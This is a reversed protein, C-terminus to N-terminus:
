YDVSTARLTSLSNNIDSSVNNDYDAVILKYGTKTKVPCYLSITSNLDVELCRHHYQKILTPYIFNLNYRINIYSTFHEDSTTTIFDDVLTYTDTPLHDVSLYFYYGEQFFTVSYDTKFLQWKGLPSMLSFHTCNVDEGDSVYYPDKLYTTCGAFTSAIFLVTIIHSKFLM